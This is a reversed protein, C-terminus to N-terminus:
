REPAPKEWFGFVHRAYTGTDIRPALGAAAIPRLGAHEVAASVDVPRKEPVDDWGVLLVGSPALATACAALSRAIEVPDDLGWGIVGNCVILDLSGDARHAGLQSLPAEIHRKAGHRARAPDVEITTFERAAFLDEVHETYWDCGVFLVRAFRRDAALAPLIKEDFLIRDPARHRPKSGTLRAFARVLGYRVIEAGKAVRRALTSM